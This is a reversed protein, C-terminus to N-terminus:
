GGLQEGRLRNAMKTRPKGPSGRGPRETMWQRLTSEWWWQRAHQKEIDVGDAPPAQRKRGPADTCYGRWTSPSVGVFQAAEASYLKRDAMGGLIPCASYGLDLLTQELEVNSTVSICRASYVPRM